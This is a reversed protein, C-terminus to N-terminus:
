KYGPSVYNMGAVGIGGNSHGLVYDGLPPIGYQILSNWNASPYGGPYGTPTLYFDNVLHSNIGKSEFVTYGQKSTKTINIHKFILSEIPCNDYQNPQLMFAQYDTTASLYDIYLYTPGGWTQIIDPHWPASPYDSLEEPRGKMNDVRLNEIQLTCGENRSDVNIGEALDDGHIWLGELHFVGKWNKIYLARRKQGFTTASSYKGQWPIDIEGGIITVNTAGNCDITVGGSVTIKEDFILKYDRDPYALKIKTNANNIHFEIPTNLIPTAWELLGTAPNIIQDQGKALM